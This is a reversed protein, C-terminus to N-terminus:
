VCSRAPGQITAKPADSGGVNYVAVRRVSGADEIDYVSMVTKIGAVRMSVTVAIGNPLDQKGIEQGPGSAVLAICGAIESTSKASTVQAAVHRSRVDGPTKCAGVALLGAIVVLIRM